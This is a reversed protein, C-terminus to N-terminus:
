RPSPRECPLETRSNRLSFALASVDFGENAWSVAGFQQSLGLEPRWLGQKELLPCAHRDPGFGRVRAAGLGWLERPPTLSVHGATALHAASPTAAAATEPRPGPARLPGPRAPEPLVKRGKVSGDNKGDTTDLEIVAWVHAAFDVNGVFRVVGEFDNALVRDGANIDLAAQQLRACSKTSKRSLLSKRFM